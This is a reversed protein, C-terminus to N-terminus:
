RFSQLYHFSCSGFGSPPEMRQGMEDIHRGEFTGKPSGSLVSRDADIAHRLLRVPLIEPAVECVEVLAHLRLAVPM